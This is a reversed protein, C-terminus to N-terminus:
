VLRNIVATYSQFGAGGPSILLAFIGLGSHEFVYTGQPLPKPLSGTFILVFGDTKATSQSPPPPVAMAGVNVPALPPLDDVAILRLWVPTSNGSEESVKFGSGIARTFSNRTLHNLGTSGTHGQWTSSSTKQKGTGGFLPSAVCALAALVSNKLLNRRSVSM